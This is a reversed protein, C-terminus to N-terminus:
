LLLIAMRSYNREGYHFNDWWQKNSESTSKWLDSVIHLYLVYVLLFFINPFFFFLSNYLSKKM